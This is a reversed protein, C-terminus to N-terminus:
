LPVPLFRQSTHPPRGIAGGRVRWSKGGHASNLRLLRASDLGARHQGIAINVVPQEPLGRSSMAACPTTNSLRVLAEPSDESCSGAATAIAGDYTRLTSKPVLVANSRLDRITMLPSKFHRVDRAWVKTRLFVALPAGVEFARDVIKRRNRSRRHPDDKCCYDHNEAIPMYLTLRLGVGTDVFSVVSAAGPATLAGANGFAGEAVTTGDGTAEGAGYVPRSRM